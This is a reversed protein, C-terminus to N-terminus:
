HRTCSPTARAAAMLPWCGFLQSIVSDKIEYLDIVGRRLAAGCSAVDARLRSSPPCRLGPGNSLGASTGIVM